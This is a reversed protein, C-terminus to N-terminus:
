KINEKIFDKLRDHIYDRNTGKFMLLKMVFNTLCNPCIDYQDEGRERRGSAPDTYEKDNEFVLKEMRSHQKGCCDCVTVQM